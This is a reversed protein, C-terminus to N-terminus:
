GQPFKARFIIHNPGERVAKVPLAMVLTSIMEEIQDSRFSATFQLDGLEESAIEIRGGYYRNIDAIVDRLFANVYVLRGDRWTALDEPRIDRLVPEIFGDRPTIVQQGATVVLKTDTSAVDEKEMEPHMVEVVGELVSVRIRDPGQHVDFKTGVVRVATDGSIVFFPREPNHMVSFFAEGNKLIVRRENNSFSVDIGSQAGLTVTSGDPLTFEKIEAVGTVYQQKDALVGTKTPQTYFLIVAMVLVSLMVAPIAPKGLWDFANVLFDKISTQQRSSLSVESLGGLQTLEPIVGWAQTQLRYAREHAENAALWVAFREKDAAKVDESSLLVLWDAAEEHIKERKNMDDYM